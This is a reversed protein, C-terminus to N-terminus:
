AVEHMSPRGDRSVPPKSGAEEVLVQIHEHVHIRGAKTTETQQQQSRRFEPGLIEEDSNNDRRIYTITTPGGIGLKRDADSFSRNAELDTDSSPRTKLEVDTTGTLSNDNGTGHKYYGKSRKSESSSQNTSGTPSRRFLPRLVPIGACIMTVALEVASWIILPVTDETYNKSAIGSLSVTRIIGAVGAIAGLSLSVAITLKEKYRMNLGWIFLWPFAAFFFDAVICAVGLLLSFPAIQFHCVGEVRPDYISQSPICQTWFLIAVVVSVLLIGVSATWLAVTQWPRIVIRLLFLGLSVKATAMGIVAFTQGIMEWQVAQVANNLDLSAVPQGFGYHSSVQLFLTYFLLFVGSLAFVYDDSGVRRVICARTYTRLVVFIWTVATLVWMIAMAMLAKTAM